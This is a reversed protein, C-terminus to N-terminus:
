KKAYENLHGVDKIGILCPFCFLANRVECGCIWSCKDYIEQKFYRNYSRDKSGKATQVICLNPMPRGLTEIEVKEELSISSFPETLEVFFPLLINAYRVANATDDYFIPGIVRRASIGRWVSSTKMM